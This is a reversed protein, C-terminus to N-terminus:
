GNTLGKKAADRLAKFKEMQAVMKEQLDRSTLTDLAKLGFVLNSESNEIIFEALERSVGIMVEPPNNSLNEAPMPTTRDPM